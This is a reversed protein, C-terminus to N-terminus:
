WTPFDLGGEDLFHRLLRLADQLERYIASRRGSDLRNDPPLLLDALEQLTKGTEYHLSLLLYPRPPLREM